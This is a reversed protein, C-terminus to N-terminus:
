DKIGVCLQTSFVLLEELKIVVAKIILLYVQIEDHVQETIDELVRLFTHTKGLYQLKVM